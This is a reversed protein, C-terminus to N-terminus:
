KSSMQADDLNAGYLDAGELSAKRLDARTLNAGYLDACRLDAGSLDAGSLNAGYLRAGRLDSGYLVAGSLNAGYLDAGALDACQLDAGSLNTGYLDEGALSRAQVADCRPDARRCQGTSAMCAANRHSDVKVSCGTSCVLVFSALLVARYTIMGPVRGQGLDLCAAHRIRTV